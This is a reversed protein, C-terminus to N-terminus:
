AANFLCTGVPCGCSGCYPFTTVLHWGFAKAENPVMGSVRKVYAVASTTEDSVFGTDFVALTRTKYRVEVM